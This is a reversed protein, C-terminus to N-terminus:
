PVVLQKAIERGEPTLFYGHEPNRSVIGARELKNLHRDLVRSSRAEKGISVLLENTLQRLHDTPLKRDEVHNGARLLTAVLASREVATAILGIAEYKPIM